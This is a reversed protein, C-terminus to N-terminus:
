GSPEALKLQVQKFLFVQSIHRVFSLPNLAFSLTSGLYPIVYPVVPAEGPMKRRRAYIASISTAFFTLVVSLTCYIYVNDLRELFQSILTPM